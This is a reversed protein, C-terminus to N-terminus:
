LPKLKCYRYVDTAKGTQWHKIEFTVCSRPTDAGSLFCNLTAAFGEKADFSLRYYTRGAVVHPMRGKQWDLAHLVGIQQAQKLTDRCNEFEGACAPAAVLAALVVIAFRM